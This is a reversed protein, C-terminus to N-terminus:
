PRSGGRLDEKWATTPTSRPSRSRSTLSSRSPTLANALRAVAVPIRGNDKDLEEWVLAALDEQAERVVEVEQAASVAQVESVMRAEWDQFEAMYKLRNIGVDQMDQVDKDMLETQEL